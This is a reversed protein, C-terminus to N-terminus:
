RELTGTVGIFYKPKLIRFIKRWEEAAYHHFEDIVVFGFQDLIKQPYKVNDKDISKLLSQITVICLDSNNFNKENKSWDKLNCVQSNKYCRITNEKWSENTDTLHSIVLTKLKFHELLSLTINTKGDGPPSCLIASYHNNLDQLCKEKASNQKLIEENLKITFNTFGNVKQGQNTKIEMKFNKFLNLGFYRPIYLYENKIEFCLISKNEKSFLFNETKNLILKQKIEEIKNEKLFNVPFSFFYELTLENKTNM